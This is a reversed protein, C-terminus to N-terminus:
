PSKADANTKTKTTSPAVSETRTAAPDIPQQKMTSALERLPEADPYDIMAEILLENALRNRNAARMDAILDTFNAILYTDIAATLEDASLDTQAIEFLAPMLLYLERGALRHIVPWFVAANEPHDESWQKWYSHNGSRITLQEMLFNADNPKAASLGRSITVVDWKKDGGPLKPILGKQRLYTATEPTRESRHIPTIQLGLLPIEYFSFKRATFHTRSFETGEVSGQGRIVAFVVIGVLLASILVVWIRLRRPHVSQQRKIASDSTSM